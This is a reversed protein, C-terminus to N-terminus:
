PNRGSFAKSKRLEILKKEIDDQSIKGRAKQCALDALHFVPILKNAYDRYFEDIGDKIQGMTVGRMFDDLLLMVQIESIIKKKQEFYESKPDNGREKVFELVLTAWIKDGGHKHGQIFGIIYGLKMSTDESSNLTEWDFGDWYDKPKEQSFLIGLGLLVFFLSLYKKTM